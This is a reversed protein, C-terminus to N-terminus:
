RPASLRRRRLVIAAATGLAIVAAATFLLVLPVSTAPAAPAAVPPQIEGCRQTGPTLQETGSTVLVDAVCHGLGPLALDVTVQWSGSPLVGDYRVTSGGATSSLPAPGVQAGASSVAILTGAVAEIVPHGDSWAVDVSVAGRGDHHVTLVVTAHARAPAATGLLLILAALLVAALRRHIV